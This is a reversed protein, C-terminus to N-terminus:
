LLGPNIHFMIGFQFAKFSFETASSKYVIQHNSARFLISFIM